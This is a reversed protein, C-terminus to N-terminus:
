TQDLLKRIVKEDSLILPCTWISSSSWGDLMRTVLPPIQRQIVAADSISQDIDAIRREQNAIQRELRANYVRLGDVQKMVTKYDALLDRTEDALRDVKNQSARSDKTREKGVQMIAELSDAYVIPSGVSIVAVLLAGVLTKPRNINM